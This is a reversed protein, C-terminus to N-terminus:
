NRGRNSIGCLIISGEEQMLDVLDFISYNLAEWKKIVDDKTIEKVGNEIKCVTDGFIEKARNVDKASIIAYHPERFEYYKM